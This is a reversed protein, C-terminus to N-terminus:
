VNKWSQVFLQFLRLGKQWHSEKLFKSIITENKIFFEKRDSEDCNELIKSFLTINRSLIVKNLQNHNIRKNLLTFIENYYDENRTFGTIYEIM